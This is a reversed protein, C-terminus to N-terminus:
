NKIQVTRHKRDECPFNLVANLYKKHLLNTIVTIIPFEM